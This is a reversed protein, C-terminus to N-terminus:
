NVAARSLAIGGEGGTVALNDFGWDISLLKKKAPDVFGNLSAIANKSSRTDWLRVMGDQCAVVFHNPSTPHVAVASPASPHPFLVPRV